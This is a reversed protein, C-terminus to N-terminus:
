AQQNIRWIYTYLVHLASIRSRSLHHTTLILWLVEEERLVCTQWLVTREAWEQVGHEGVVTSDLVAGVGDKLKSVIGLPALAVVEGFFIFLYFSFLQDHVSPSPPPHPPHHPQFPWCSWPPGRRSLDLLSAQPEIEQLSKSLVSKCTCWQSSASLRTIINMYYNREKM